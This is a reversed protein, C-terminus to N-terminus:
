VETVRVAHGRRRARCGRVVFLLAAVLGATAAVAVLARSPADGLTAGDFRAARQQISANAHLAAGVACAASFTGHGHDHAAGDAYAIYQVLKRAAPNTLPRDWSSRPTPHQPDHFYCSADDLGDDSLAIIQGDGRLGAAHLTSHSTSPNNGDTSLPIAWHLRPHVNQRMSLFFFELRKSVCAQTAYLVM